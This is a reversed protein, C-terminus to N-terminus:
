FKEAHRFKKRCDQCLMMTVKLKHSVKPSKVEWSKLPKSLESGCHPCKVKKTIQETMNIM